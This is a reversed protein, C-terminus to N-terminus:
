IFMTGIGFLLAFGIMIVVYSAIILMWWRWIIAWVLHYPSKKELKKLLEKTTQM